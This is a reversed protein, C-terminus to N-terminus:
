YCGLFCSDQQLSWRCIDCNYQTGISQPHIRLPKEFVLDGSSIILFDVLGVKYAKYTYPFKLCIYKFLWKNDGLSGLSWDEFIESWMKFHDILTNPFTKPLSNINKIYSLSSLLLMIILRKELTEPKSQKQYSKGEAKCPRKEITARDM